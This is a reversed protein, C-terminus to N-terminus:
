KLKITSSVDTANHLVELVTKYSQLSPPETKFHDWYHLAMM